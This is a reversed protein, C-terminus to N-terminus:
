KRSETKVVRTVTILDARLDAVYQREGFVGVHKKAYRRLNLGATPTVYCVVRDDDDLLAFPPAVRRSSHVPMLWGQASFDPQAAATPSAQTATGVPAESLLASEIEQQWSTREVTPAASIGHREVQPDVPPVDQQSLRRHRKQLAEFENIRFAILRLEQALRSNGVAQSLAENRARLSDLDWQDMERSVLLSLDVKLQDVQRALDDLAQGTPEAAPQGTATPNSRTPNTSSRWAQSSSSSAADDAAGARNAFDALQITGTASRHAVAHPSQANEAHIWRFEGAPPAIKVYTETAFGPGISMSQEGLIEVLEGQKLRVQWKHQSLEAASSGVWAVAGDLTVEGVAPDSSRKVQRAPLWSFSGQPPRIALWGGPEHRYVDVAVGRELRQTPYYSWDPGCRVEVADVATAATYPFSLDPDKAFGSWCLGACGWLMVLTSLGRM